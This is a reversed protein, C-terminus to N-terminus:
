DVYDDRRKQNRRGSALVGGLVTLASIGCVAASLLPEAGAYATHGDMARAFVTMGEWLAFFGSACFNVAALGAAQDWRRWLAGVASLAALFPGLFLVAALLAWPSDVRYFGAVSEWNAAARIIRLLITFLLAATLGGRVLLGPLKGASKM